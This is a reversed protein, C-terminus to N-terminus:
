KKIIKQILEKGEITIRAFYVGNPLSSLDIQNERITFFYQKGTIDFINLTKIIQTKNKIFVKGTTPNPYLYPENINIDAVDLTLMTSDGLAVWYTAIPKDEDATYYCFFDEDIPFEDWNDPYNATFTVQDTNSFVIRDFNSYLWGSDWWFQKHLPTLLSGELDPDNFVESDWSATVPWYIAHIDINLYRIEGTIKKKTHFLEYDQSDWWAGNLDAQNTIRVDFVDDFPINSIDEEGFEPLIVNRSGAPDFGITLTDRNGIADEFYIQFSFEQGNVHVMCLILLLLLIISKKM